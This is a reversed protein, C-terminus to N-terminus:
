RRATPKKVTTRKRKPAPKASAKDAAAEAAAEAKKDLRDLKLGMVIFYIVVALAIFRLLADIASGIAFVGARNGIQVTLNLGKLGDKGVMLDVLPTVLSGVIQNVLGTAATGIALGVALGVVGKERIFSIFGVLQNRVM